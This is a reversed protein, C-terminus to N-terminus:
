PVRPETLDLIRNGAVNRLTQLHGSPWRVTLEDVTTRPGLGFHVRQDSQSLYSDGSKVERMQTLAGMKATVRAGVASRNSRTGRLKIMLWNGAPGRNMLLTPPDGQAVIVVDLKGDNNLDGVALGRNVRLPADEVGSAQGIDRWGGRGDGRWLLTPQRYSFTGYMMQMGDIEPFVHGNAIIWDLSGDNDFDALKTGWGVYPFSRQATGSKPTVDTFRGGGDNHYVTNYDDSFNTVVLDMNGDNDYDGADVGMGAQERGAASLSVGAALGVDTFTKDGNNHFLYHPNRDNAVYIDPRGDDDFDAILVGLGKGYDKDRDARRLRERAEL